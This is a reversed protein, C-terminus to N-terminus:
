HNYSMNTQKPHYIMGAPCKGWFLKLPFGLIPERRRRVTLGCGRKGLVRPGGGRYQSPVPLHYRLRIRAGSGYSDMAKKVNMRKGNGISKNSEVVRELAQKVRTTHILEQTKM